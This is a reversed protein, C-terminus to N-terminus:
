GDQIQRLLAEADVKNEARTERISVIMTFVLLVMGVMAGMNRYNVEAMDALQEISAGAILIAFYMLCLYRLWRGFSVEKRAQKMHMHLLIVGATALVGKIWYFATNHTNLFDLM